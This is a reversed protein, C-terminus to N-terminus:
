KLYPWINPQAYIRDSHSRSRCWRIKDWHWCRLLQWTIQRLV